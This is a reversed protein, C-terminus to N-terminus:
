KAGLWKSIFKLVDIQTVIGVLEQQDNVIPICGFKRTAMVNVAEILPSDPKLTLPNMTMHHELLISDLQTKDYYDGSETERPAIAHYLDRQTVIGILHNERDVVPLHRIKNKRLKEEVQSFPDDKKVCIVNKIMIEKIPTDRLMTM